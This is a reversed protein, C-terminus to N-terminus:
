IVGYPRFISQREPVQGNADPNGAQLARVTETDLAVFRLDTM